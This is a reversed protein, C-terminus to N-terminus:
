IKTLWNPWRGRYDLGNRKKGNDPKKRTQGHDVLQLQESLLARDRRKIGRQMKQKRVKALQSCNNRSCSELVKSEPIVIRKKKCWFVKM